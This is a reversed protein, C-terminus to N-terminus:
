RPKLIRGISAIGFEYSSHGEAWAVLPFWKVCLFVTGEGIDGISKYAPNKVGAPRKNWPHLSPRVITHWHSQSNCADLLRGLSHEEGRL